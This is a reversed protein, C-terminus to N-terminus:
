EPPPPAQTLDVHDIREVKGNSRVRYVDLIIREEGPKPRRVITLRCYHYMSRARNWTVYSSDPLVVAAAAKREIESIRYLPAGAGGTAVQWFGKGDRGRVYTRQYLHEHGAILGTVNRRRFIEILRARRRLEEPKSDDYEWNSLYHGSTVIPFHQIVFRYRAPVALTSDIWDLQETSLTDELSDPFADYPDALVNTDIFVFRAISEPLDVAFWYKGPQAPPGMVANWNAAGLPLATKEHNGPAALYPVSRRLREHKQVFREWLRGRLGNEVVDGTQIVFSVGPDRAIERELARLVVDERGGTFTHSWFMAYLDRFLDFNPVVSQVLAVPINVLGWLFQTFDRSGINLVAPVGWPTTMMRFGPRNDGYFIIRISDAAPDLWLTGAKHLAQNTTRPLLFPPAGAKTEDHERYALTDFATIAGPAPYPGRYPAIPARACSDDALMAFSMLIVVVAPLLLRRM